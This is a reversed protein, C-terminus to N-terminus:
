LESLILYIQEESIGTFKIIQEISMGNKHCTQVLNDRGEMRGEMRGKKEGEMIGEMRGEMRGEIRGEMRGKRRGRKEGKKEGREKAYDVALIVDEYDMISKNYAEMEEGTLNNIKTIEYLEKFIEDDLEEPRAPLKEMNKLSYLWKDLVTVLETKKKKFKPLEIIVL